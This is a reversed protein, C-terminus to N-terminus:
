SWEKVEQKCRKVNLDGLEQRNELSFTVNSEANEVKFPTIFKFILPPTM